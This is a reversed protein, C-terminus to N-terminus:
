QAAAKAELYPKTLKMNIYVEPRSPPKPGNSPQFHEKCRAKDSPENCKECWYVRKNCVFKRKNFHYNNDPLDADKVGHDYLMFNRYAKKVDSKLTVAGEVYDMRAFNTGDLFQVLPNHKYKITKDMELQTAPLNDWVDGDGVKVRLQQYRLLFRMLLPVVETEVIRSLLTCDRDEVLKEFYYCMLRRALAGEADPYKPFNNGGWLQPVTWAKTIASHNKVAISVPDGSVMSQLDTQNLVTHIDKPLDSITVL